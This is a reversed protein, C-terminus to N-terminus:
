GFEFHVGEIGMLQAYALMARLNRLDRGLNNGIYGDGKDQNFDCFYEDPLIHPYRSNFLELLNETSSLRKIMENVLFSVKQTNNSCNKKRRLSDVIIRDREEENKANRLLFSEHDENPYETMEFLPSLDLKLIKGLQELERQAKRGDDYQRLLLNCFNRSLKEDKQNEDSPLVRQASTLAIDLGM